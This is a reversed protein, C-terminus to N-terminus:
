DAHSFQEIRSDDLAKLLTIVKHMLYPRTTKLSERLEVNQM